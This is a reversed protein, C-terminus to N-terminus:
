KRDGIWDDPLIIEVKGTRIETEFNTGAANRVPNGNADVKICYCQGTEEDATFCNSIIEGNLKVEALSAQPTYGPDEERISLRM